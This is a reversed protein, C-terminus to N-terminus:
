DEKEWLKQFGEAWDKRRTLDLLPHLTKMSVSLSALFICFLRSDESSLNLEKAFAQSYSEMGDYARETDGKILLDSACVAFSEIHPGLTELRTVLNAHDLKLSELQVPLRELIRALEGAFRAYDKDRNGKGEM